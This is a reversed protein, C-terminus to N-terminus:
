VIVLCQAVYDQASVKILVEESYVKIVAQARGYYTSHRGTMFTEKTKPDASGFALLEGGDVHITLETDRNCEIEGNEGTLDIDLYVIDGVSIQQAEPMIRIKTHEDASHLSSYSLIQGDADYSVAKIEGAEYRVRFAATMDVLPERGASKGNIFLEASAGEAYVEVDTENGDCGQYSWYPMANNKRWIGTCPTIGPHNAPCVGIYPTTRAGWVVSALGAEGTDNGLIDMAGCGSLLWPYKKDFGMDEQDYSVGGIGVEGLYDWATWMFDGIVYPLKEVLPWTRAIEYCYTESGVIIREPHLKSENEYRSVAYNYGAIDLKDLLPSAVADAEPRAAAMTMREGMMSAMANYETSNMEVESKEEVSDPDERAFGTEEVNGSALADISIGQDELMALLLLTLNVGATVPRTSDQEKIATIIKGALEVGEPKAPETVENGISYLVVCPHNYDKATIKRIDEMYNDQFYAAYDYKTKPKDWMDWLEDMVYMGLEDCAELMARCAPNHASRIANFGMEKLKEIRRRESAAFSRSGLIGNDHHICGGKLLTNQGNVFFGEKTWELIRIGFTTEATDLVKGGKQLTVICRYLNPHQADWLRADPISFTVDSGMGQAVKTKQWFIENVIQVDSAANTEIEVRISAPDVSQTTIKVGDPDIHEKGGVLLWVPRYIGAGTYWRSNPLSSNDTEVRLTNETGYNLNTLEMRFFNYGYVESGIKRGNLFVEAGPYVGEFEVFVDEEEWEYPAIFTKEYVFKGGCFYAGGSGSPADACRQQTQMADHPVTVPMLEKNELGFRWNDCFDTRHM